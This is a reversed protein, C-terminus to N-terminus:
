FVFDMKLINKAFLNLILFLALYGALPIMKDKQFLIYVIGHIILSFILGVIFFLIFTRFSFLPTVAIFFLVDGMGLTNDIPNVLAKKKISYYIVIGIINILIFLLNYLINELALTESVYNIVIALIFILIPLLIHISRNKVDQFLVFFLIIGLISISITYVM